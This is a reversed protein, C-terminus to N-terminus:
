RYIRNQRHYAAIYLVSVKLLVADLFTENDVYYYGALLDNNTYPGEDSNLATFSRQYAIEMSFVTSGLKRSMGISAEGWYQQQEREALRDTSFSKLYRTDLDEERSIVADAGMLWSTGIALTAFPVYLSKRLQVQKKVGILFPMLTIREEYDIASNSANYGINGYAASGRVALDPILEWEMDGGVEWGLPASYDLPADGAYVTRDTTVRPMTRLLSVHGGVRWRGLDKRLAHQLQEWAGFLDAEGPKGKILPDYPKIIQHRDNRFLRELDSRMQDLSDEGAEALAKLFLLRGKVERDKDCDVLAGDITNICAIRDGNDFLAKADDFRQACQAQSFVTTGLLFASLVATWQLTGSCRAIASRM